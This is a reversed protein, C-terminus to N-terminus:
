VFIDPLKTIVKEEFKKGGDNMDFHECTMDDLLEKFNQQIPSFM